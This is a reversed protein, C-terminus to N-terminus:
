PKASGTSYAQPIDDWFFAVYSYPPRQSSGVSKLAFRFPIEFHWTESVHSMPVSFLVEGKPPIVKLTEVGPGYGDNYGHPRGLDHYNPAGRQRLKLADEAGRAEAENMNPWRFIDTLGEEGTQYVVGSGAADGKPSPPDPVVEDVVALEGAAGFTAIVIPIRCNNRLRLWLGVSPEGETLPKRPGLHDVQLYVYSKSADLAFDDDQSVTRTEQPRADLTFALSVVTLIAISGILKM